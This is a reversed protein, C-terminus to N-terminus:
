FLTGCRIICAQLWSLHPFDTESPDGINDRPALPRAHGRTRSAGGEYVIPFDLKFGVKRQKKKVKEKVNGLLYSISQDHDLTRM